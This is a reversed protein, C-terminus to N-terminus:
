SKQQSPNEGQEFILQYPPNLNPWPTKRVFLTRHTPNITKHTNLEFKPSLQTQQQQYAQPISSPKNSNTPIKYMITNILNISKFRNKRKSLKTQTYIHISKTKYSTWKHNKQTQNEQTGTNSKRCKHEHTRSSSSTLKSNM